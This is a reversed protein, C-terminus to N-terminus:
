TESLIEERRPDITLREIDSNSLELFGPRTLLISEKILDNCGADFIPRTSRKPLFYGSNDALSDINANEDKM